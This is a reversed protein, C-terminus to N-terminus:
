DDVSLTICGLFVEYTLTRLFQIFRILLERAREQLGNEFFFAFVAREFQKQKKSKANNVNRFM